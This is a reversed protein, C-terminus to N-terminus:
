ALVQGATQPVSKPGKVKAFLADLDVDDQAEVEPKRKRSGEKLPTEVSRSNTRVAASGKQLDVSPINVKGAVKASRKNSGKSSPEPM